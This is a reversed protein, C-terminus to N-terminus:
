APIHCTKEQRADGPAFLTSPSAPNSTPQLLKTAAQAPPPPPRCLRDEAIAAASYLLRSPIGKALSHIHWANTQHHIFKASCSYILPAANTIQVREVSRRVVASLRAGDRAESQAAGARVQRGVGPLCRRQAARRVRQEVGRGVAGM